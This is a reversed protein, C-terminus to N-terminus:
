EVPDSTELSEVVVHQGDALAAVDRVVVRERAEVGETIVQREGVLPGLEVALRQLTADEGVRYVFASGEEWLVATSPVTLVQELPSLPMRAVALVGSRTEQMPMRLRVAHTFTDADPDPQVAMVEALLSRGGVRVPVRDGRELARAISGPVQAYFDLRDSVLEVAEQNRVAYDGVELPVRNIRGDFPARLVTRDLNRQARDLAAQRAAILQPGVAVSARLRAEESLRQVLLAEADGLLTKSALSREGLAKL